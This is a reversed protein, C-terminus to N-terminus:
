HDFSSMVRPPTAPIDRLVARVTAPEHHPAVITMVTLATRGFHMALRQAALHVDRARVAEVIAAHEAAGQSWARPEQTVYIRRYREAHDNLEGLTRQIRDGSGAVLLRHFRRHPVEWGEIDAAAAREEMQVMCNDIEVLHEDAIQGITLRAAMAELTIRMAYLQELDPISFPAVRAQRNREYDILGERQLMRLAERLPGRSVGLLKAVQVQSIRQGAGLEGALIWRRLETHVFDVEDPRRGNADNSPLQTM